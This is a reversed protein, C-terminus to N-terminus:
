EAPPAFLVIDRGLFEATCAYERRDYEPCEHGYCEDGCSHEAQWWVLTAEADVSRAVDLLAFAEASPNRPESSEGAVESEWVWGPREAALREDRYVAECAIGEALARQLRTSGHQQAWAVIVAHRRAEAADYTAQARTNHEELLRDVRDVYRQAEPVDTSRPFGGLLDRYTHNHSLGRRLPHDRYIVHTATALLEEDSMAALAALAAAQQAARQVREAEREAEREAQEQAERQARAAILGPIADLLAAVAAQSAETSLPLPVEHDGTTRLLAYVGQPMDPRSYMTVEHHEALTARQEQTLAALDVEVAEHERVDHGVAMAARRDMQIWVRM